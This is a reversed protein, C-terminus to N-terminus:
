VVVTDTVPISDEVAMVIESPTVIFTRFARLFRVDASYSPPQFVTFAQQYSWAANTPLSETQHLGMAGTTTDSTVGRNIVGGADLRPASDLTGRSYQQQVPAAPFGNGENGVSGVSGTNGEVARRVNSADFVAQHNTGVRNTPTAQLGGLEYLVNRQADYAVSELAYAKTRLVESSHTPAGPASLV